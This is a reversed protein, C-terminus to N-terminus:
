QGEGPVKIPSSPNGGGVPLPLKVVEHKPVIILVLAIIGGGVLASVGGLLAIQSTRIMKPESM